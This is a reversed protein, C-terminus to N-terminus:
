AGHSAFAHIRNVRPFRGTRLPVTWTGGKTPVPRSPGPGLKMMAVTRHRKLQTINREIILRVTATNQKEIDPPIPGPSCGDTRGDM